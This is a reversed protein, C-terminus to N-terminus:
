IVFKRGRISALLKLLRTTGKSPSYSTLHPVAVKNPSIYRFRDQDSKMYWGDHSRSERGNKQFEVTKLKDSKPTTPSRKLPYAIYLDTAHFVSMFYSMKVWHMKCSMYQWFVVNNESSLPGTEHSRRSFHLFTSLSFAFLVCYSFHNIEFLRFSSLTLM